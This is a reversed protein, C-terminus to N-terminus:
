RIMFEHNDFYGCQIWRQKQFELERPADTTDLTRLTCWEKSGREKVMLRM